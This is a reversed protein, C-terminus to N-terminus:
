RYNAALMTNVFEKLSAVPIASEIEAKLEELKLSGYNFVGFKNSQRISIMESSADLIYVLSYCNTNNAINLQLDSYFPYMQHNAVIGHYGCDKLDHIVDNMQSRLIVTMAKWEEINQKISNEIEKENDNQQKKRQEQESKMDKLMDKAWGM